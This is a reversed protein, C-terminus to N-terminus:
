NSLWTAYLINSKYTTSSCDSMLKFIINCGRWQRQASHETWWSRYTHLSCCWIYAVPVLLLLTIMAYSRYQQKNGCHSAKRVHRMPKWIEVFHHQSWSIFTMGLAANVFIIHSRCLENYFPPSTTAVEGNTNRQIRLEGRVSHARLVIGYILPIFLCCHLSRLM